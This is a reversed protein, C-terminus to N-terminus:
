NLMAGIGSSTAGGMRRAKSDSPSRRGPTSSQLGRSVTRWREGDHGITERKVIEGDVKVRLEWDGQDHAAVHFSLRNLKDKGIRVKRELAAPKDKTFPHMLLVNPRGHFEALKM